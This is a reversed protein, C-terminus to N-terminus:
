RKKRGREEEVERGGLRGAERVGAGLGEFGVEVRPRCSFCYDDRCQGCYWREGDKSARCENCVYSTYDGTSMVMPHGNSPCCPAQAGSPKQNPTHPLTPDQTVNCRRLPTATVVVGSEWGSEGLWERGVVSEWGREGM